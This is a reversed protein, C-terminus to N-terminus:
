ANQSDTYINASHGTKTGPKLSDTQYKPGTDRSVSGLNDWNTDGCNSRCVQDQVTCLQKWQHIPDCREKQPAPRLSGAVRIASPWLGPCMLLSITRWPWTPPMGRKVACLTLIQEQTYRYPLRIISFTHTVSPCKQEHRHSHKWSPNELAPYRNEM